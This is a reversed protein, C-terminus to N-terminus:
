FKKRARGTKQKILTLTLLTMGLIILLVGIYLYLSDNQKETTQNTFILDLTFYSIYAHAAGYGVNTIVAV